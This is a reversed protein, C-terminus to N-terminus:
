RRGVGGARLTRVNGDADVGSAVLSHQGAELDAPITVPVSVTGDAATTASGLVIPTSYVVVQVTSGSLFEAGVTTLAQGPRFTSIPGQDTTLTATAAAPTSPGGPPCRGAPAPRRPRFPPTARHTVTPHRDARLM